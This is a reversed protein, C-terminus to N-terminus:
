VQPNARYIEGAREVAEPSLEVAAVDTEDREIGAQAVASVSAFFDRLAASKDGGQEGDPGLLQGTENDTTPIMFDEAFAGVTAKVGRFAACGELSDSSSSAECSVDVHVTGQDVSTRAGMVCGGVKSCISAAEACYRDMLGAAEARSVAADAEGDGGTLRYNFSYEVREEYATARVITVEFKNQM